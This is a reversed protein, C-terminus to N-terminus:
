RIDGVEGAGVPVRHFIIAEKITIFRLGSPVDVKGFLHTVHNAFFGDPGADTTPVGWAGVGVAGWERAYSRINYRLDM